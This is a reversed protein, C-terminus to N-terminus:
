APLVDFGRHEEDMTRQRLIRGDVRISYGRSMRCERMPIPYGQLHLWEGAAHAFWLPSSYLYPNPNGYYGVRAAQLM